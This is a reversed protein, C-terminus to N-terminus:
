GCLRHSRGPVLNRRLLFLFPALPVSVSAFGVGALFDVCPPCTLDPPPSQLPPVTAAIERFSGFRVISRQVLHLASAIHREAEWKWTPHRHARNATSPPSGQVLRLDAVSNSQVNITQKPPHIHELPSPDMRLGSLACVISHCIASTHFTRHLPDRSADFGQM